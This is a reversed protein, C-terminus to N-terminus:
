EDVSRKAELRYFRKSSTQTQTDLIRISDAINKAPAEKLLNWEEDGLNDQYLIRYTISAAAQFELAVKGDTTLQVQSFGLFSFPNTPDTGSLYETSNNIGDKDPDGSAGDNGEANSSDLGFSEEWSDPM